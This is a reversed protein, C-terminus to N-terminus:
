AKTKMSISRVNYIRQSVCFIFLQSQHYTKLASKFLKSNLKEKESVLQWVLTLSGVRVKKNRSPTLLTPNMCNEYNKASDPICNVGELIQIAIVTDM